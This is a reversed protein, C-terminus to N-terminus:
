LRLRPQPQPKSAAAAAIATTLGRFVDTRLFFLCLERNLTLAARYTRFRCRHVARESARGGKPGLRGAWGRREMETGMETPIGHCGLRPFRGQVSARGRAAASSAQQRRGAACRLAFKRAARSSGLEALHDHTPQLRPSSLYSPPLYTLLILRRTHTGWHAPTGAVAFSSLRTPPL